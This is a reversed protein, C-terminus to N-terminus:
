FAAFWIRGSTLQQLWKLVATKRPMEDFMSRERTGRLGLLSPIGGPLLTSGWSMSSKGPNWLCFSAYALIDLFCPSFFLSPIFSCTYPLFLFSLSRTQNWPIFLVCPPRSSSPFPVVFHFAALNRIQIPRNLLYYIFACSKTIIQTKNYHYFNKGGKKKKKTNPSPIFTFQYNSTIFKEWQM